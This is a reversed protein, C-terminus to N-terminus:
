ERLCEPSVTPNAQVGEARCPLSGRHGRPWPPASVALELLWDQASPATGRPASASSNRQCRARMASPSPLGHSPPTPAPTVTTTRRALLSQAGSGPQATLRADTRTGPALGLSGRLQPSSSAAEGAPAPFRREKESVKTESAAEGKAVSLLWCM